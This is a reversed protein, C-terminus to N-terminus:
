REGRAKDEARRKKRQRVANEAMERASEDDSAIGSEQLFEAEGRIEELDDVDFEPKSSASSPASGRPPRTV